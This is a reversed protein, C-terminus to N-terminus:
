VLMKKGIQYLNTQKSSGSTFSKFYLDNIDQLYKNNYKAKLKTTVDHRSAHFYFAVNDNCFSTFINALSRNIYDQREDNEVEFAIGKIEWTSIFEFEKTIVIGDENNGKFSSFPIFKEFTPNHNLGLISLTPIDVKNSMQKLKLPTYTKAQYYKKNAGPTICKLGQALIAYMFDDYSAIFRMILVVPISFLFYLPSTWLAIFLIVGLVLILATIPVGFIMAPRTMAKFLPQIEKKM